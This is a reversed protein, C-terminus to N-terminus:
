LSAIVDAAILEQAPFSAKLTGYKVAATIVPQILDPTLKVGQLARPMRLLQDAPIATLKAM